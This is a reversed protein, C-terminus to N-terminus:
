LVEAKAPRKFYFFLPDDGKSPEVTAVFTVRQGKQVDWINGPVSGWCKWGRDDKVGMKTVIEGPMYGDQEKITFVEGTVTVRGVPLEVEPQAEIEAAKAAQRADEKETDKLISKEAAAIQRDSLEGYKKLSRYLDVLFGNVFGYSNEIQGAYTIWVLLPHEAFIREIREMKTAQQSNLRAATRLAQFQTKTMEFRGDLCIEGVYIYQKSAEHVMLAGYRIRVGCHGCTGYDGHGHKFGAELLRRVTEMRAKNSHLDLFHPFLDFVGWCQYAEPDFEPASPRHIDTRQSTM